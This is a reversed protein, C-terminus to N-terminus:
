PKSPVELNTDMSDGTVGQETGLKSGESRSSVDDLKEPISKTREKGGGKFSEQEKISIAIVEEKLSTAQPSINFSKKFLSNRNSSDSAM